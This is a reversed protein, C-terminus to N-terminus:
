IIQYQTAATADVPLLSGPDHMLDVIYRSPMAFSEDSSPNLLLVENWARSYEGRVLTCSLGICDALCQFTFSVPQYKSLSSHIPMSLVGLYVTVATSLVRSKLYFIPLRTDRQQQKTKQRCCCRSVNSISGRWTECLCLFRPLNVRVCCTNWQQRYHPSCGYAAGYPESHSRCAVM